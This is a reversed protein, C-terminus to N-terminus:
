TTLIEDFPLPKGLGYGQAYDVGIDRLRDLIEDNEVFEAITKLGMVHGIDNISKVMAYDIEDDVIDKVFMGDIKLFDVPLNKLYGYSSLGSGFDDLAFLCGKEKLTSIFTSAISLNSIAVTETVEFCIKNAEIGSEKLQALIYDLFGSKTLSPGSLNISIFNIQKVFGEHSSLLKCANKIVWADLLDVLNYREASVLFAGPLIIEGEEGVMRLLLEYHRNSSGDLSLIPQAYLCFRNEGLADNIRTVWLMEGQRQAIEIDEPRYLHIRNRGLDKAMYCAADAQKMLETYDQAASTVDVMGISVGIRFAHGEWTFQFDSIGKLLSNTVRQAQELTCHEMLVGFEDGGLRALTDRKRVKGLILKAVQRLLEDGATHGCTDNVVKFQDLDMFCLAHEQQDHAYTSLMRKARLEFETRNILGTLADHSAQHSLQVEAKKRDSIDTMTGVMRLPNGQQDRAVVQGRGLVWVWSGDKRQLRHEEKWLTYQGTLNKQLSKVVRSKDEPHIREEWTAFSYPVNDENIIDIWGPSYYVSNKSIDFDWLGDQSAMMALRYKEENDELKQQGRKIHYIVFISILTVMLVILVLFFFLKKVSQSHALQSQLHFEKAKNRAFEILGEMHDTLFVVHNAGKGKTIEAADDYKGALSLRIVESRIVKWDTFSQRAQIIRSKDGLFRQLIIDFHDYVQKEDLGVKKVADELDKATRALVVDKMDRHMAIINSNAQLVANSVTLPHLYMKETLGALSNVERIAIIGMVILLIMVIFYGVMMKRILLVKLSM